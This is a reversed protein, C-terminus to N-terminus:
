PSSLSGRASSKMGAVDYVHKQVYYYYNQGSLKAVIM